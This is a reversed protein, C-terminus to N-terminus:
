LTPYIAFTAVGCQNKNRPLRFFGKEGWATGWSNKILWYDQGKETGYGVVLVAHNVLRSNCLPDNYIGSRYRHFSPLNANIGVSVPGVMAVAHMLALENNRPLIQFGSCYAARGRVTYRCRGERHEYPYVCDSDIGQNQIIYTFAKSLYGGKCGHNGIAVSCDVLNQPSLPVLLGTHKKMQGELAGVASFAWCSGCPGQNEVPSVLGKETWDVTLPILHMESLFTFSVNTGGPPLHEPRLGNLQVNVEDATMDSLHNTGLTYTHQGESAAVNHKIMEVVNQQWVARRWTEEWVTSYTKNYETKWSLWYRNLNM